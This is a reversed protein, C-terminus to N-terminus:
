RFEDQCLSSTPIEEMSRLLMKKEEKRSSKPTRLQPEFCPQFSIYHSSCYCWGHAMGNKRTLIDCASRALIGAISTSVLSIAACGSIQESLELSDLSVKFEQIKKIIERLYLTM